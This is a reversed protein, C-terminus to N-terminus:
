RCQIVGGLNFCQRNGCQLIDKDLKVCRSFDIPQSPAVAPQKVSPDVNVKVPPAPPVNVKSVPRGYTQLVQDAEKSGLKSSITLYEMAKANNKRCNAEVVSLAFYMDGGSFNQRAFSDAQACNGTKIIDNLQDGTTKGFGACGAMLSVAFALLLKRSEIM